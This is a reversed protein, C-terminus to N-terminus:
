SKNGQHRWGLAINTKTLSDFNCLYTTAAAAPDAEMYKLFEVIETTGEEINRTECHSIRTQVPDLQALIEDFDTNAFVLAM